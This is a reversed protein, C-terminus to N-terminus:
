WPAGTGDAFARQVDAVSVLDAPLPITRRVPAPPRLVTLATAVSPSDSDHGRVQAIMVTDDARLDLCTRVWRRLRALVDPPVPDGQIM